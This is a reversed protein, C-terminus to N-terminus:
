QYIDFWRTGDVRQFHGRVYAPVFYISDDRIPDLTTAMPGAPVKQVVIRGSGRLRELDDIVRAKLEPRNLETPQPWDISLPNRQGARAWYGPYDAVIAYPHDGVRSVARDLDALVARTRPNTRLAAGGPFVGDLRETLETAPGDRYIVAVRATAWCLLVAATAGAAVLIEAARRRGPRAEITAAGAGARAEALLQAVLAGAALAPSSVGISISACWATLLALFGLRTAPHAIGRRWASALTLGLSAGFLAFSTDFLYVRIEGMISAAAVLVLGWALAPAILSGRPAAAASRIALLGVVLGGALGAAVWRSKLYAHVGHEALGSQSTIQALAAGLAGQGLLVLGYLALPAIVAIGVDTRRRDGLVLAAIPALPVFNQRCLAAAGMLVYGLLKPGRAPSVALSLGVSALAIADVTHWPMVPFTFSSAAFAIATALVAQLRSPAAIMRGALRTWSWAILAFEFWVALRAIWFTHDGGVMVWPAHLLASGVPRISIFDRHPVQGDLLRRSYALIFGDDTPNFGLASLALHAALPLAVLAALAAAVDAWHWRPRIVAEPHRM